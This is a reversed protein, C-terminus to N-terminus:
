AEAVMEGLATVRGRASFSSATSIYQSPSVALGHQATDVQQEHPKYM